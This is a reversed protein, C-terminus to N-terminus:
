SIFNIKGKSQQNLFRMPTAEDRSDTDGDFNTTQFQEDPRFINGTSDSNDMPRFNDNFVMLSPHSRDEITLNPYSNGSKITEKIFLYLKIM